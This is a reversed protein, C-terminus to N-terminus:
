RDSDLYRDILTILQAIAQHEELLLEKMQRMQETNPPRHVLDDVFDLLPSRLNRSLANETNLIEWRQKTVEFREKMLIAKEQQQKAKALRRETLLKLRQCKEEETM